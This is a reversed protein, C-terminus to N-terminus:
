CAIVKNRGAQKAQRLARDSKIILEDPDSAESPLASVGCSVTIGTAKRRLTIKMKEIERCLGQAIKFAEKKDINALLVCFEEGGFRSITPSFNKLYRTLFASLDKLVIDGATHGFRDNYKKFYDIDLMLLALNINQRRSRKCEEKIRELFYGKTYLSTLGDHIALDQTKQFLEGNEIAVAGFDCIATLLRLDDQSYFSPSPNDIRLVGLFQHNSILPSSILSSVPRLDQAGIKAPDFRFDKNIDEVILPQAHRSVWHDFIDGEKAKIVLNKDEKKTKFLSIKHTDKNVLYLLCTGKNDAIVLFAASSLNDAIAELNLNQNIEEM